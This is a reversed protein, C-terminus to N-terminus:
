RHLRGKLRRSKAPSRRVSGGHQLRPRAGGLHGARGADPRVAGVHQRPRADRGPEGGPAGVVARVEDGGVAGAHRGGRHGAVGEDHANASRADHGHEELGGGAQVGPGDGPVQTEAAVPGRQHRLIGEDRQRLALHSPPRTAVVAVM